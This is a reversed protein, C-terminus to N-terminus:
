IDLDDDPDEDDVDDAADPEYFIHGQNAQPQLLSSKKEASFHFPLSLNEKAKREKDSLHLNFTLSATPDVQATEEEKGEPRRSLQAPEGLVKLNFDELVTFYEEKKIVKGSEKRQVITALALPEVDTEASPRKPAPAVMVVTGALHCVSGVVGQEHLDTHLLAVVRKVKLGTHTPRGCLQQLTQCVLTVPNHLLVWSLSDLVLTVSKSDENPAQGIRALVDQTTFQLPTFSSSEDWNLPDSYADHFVLRQLAAQTLSKLLNRGGCDATDAVVQLGELAGVVLQLM